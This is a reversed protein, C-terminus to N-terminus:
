EKPISNRTGNCLHCQRFFSLKAIKKRTAIFFYGAAIMYKANSIVKKVLVRQKGQMHLLRINNHLELQFLQVQKDRMSVVKITCRILIKKQMRFISHWSHDKHCSLKKYIKERTDTNKVFAWYSQSDSRFIKVVSQACASSVSGSSAKLALKMYLLCIIAFDNQCHISRSDVNWLSCVPHSKM